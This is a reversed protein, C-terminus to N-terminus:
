RMKFAYQDRKSHM